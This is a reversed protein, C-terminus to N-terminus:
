VISANPIEERLPSFHYPYPHSQEGVAVGSASASSAFDGSAVPFYDLFFLPILNGEKKTRIPSLPSRPHVRISASPLHTPNIPARSQTNLRM